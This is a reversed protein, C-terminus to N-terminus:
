GLGSTPLTLHPYSVANFGSVLTVVSVYLTIPKLLPVSLRWFKQVENAGDLTAAEYVSVPLNKFGVLYIM